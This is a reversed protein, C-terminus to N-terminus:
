IALNEQDFGDMCGLQQDVTEGPAAFEVDYGSQAWYLAKGHIQCKAGARSGACWNLVGVKAM